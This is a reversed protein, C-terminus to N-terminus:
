AGPLEGTDVTRQALDRRLRSREMSLQQLLGYADAAAVKLREMVIGPHVVVLPECAPAAMHTM